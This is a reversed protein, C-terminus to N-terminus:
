RKTFFGSVRKLFSRIGGAEGETDVGLLKLCINEISKVAETEPYLLFVPEQKKVARLMNADYPIYGLNDLDIDLFHKSVKSIKGFVDIAEAEDEARNVVVRFQPRNGQENCIAKVIAYSDTLSTPEPTTVILTEGSAKIFNIVSNSMGAGTDILIIDSITDLYSFKEIVVGMQREDMNALERIGSGGSVLKVGLPGETIIEGITKEGDFVHKLNFKPVLGFLVEINALGFDADMIVVRKEHKTLALALNLTINSKGVGGKGSTVTIIRSTVDPPAQIEQQNKQKVIDRLREAQDVLNM